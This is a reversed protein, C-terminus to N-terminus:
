EKGTPEAERRVRKPGTAKTVEWGRRRFFAVARPDDTTGIGENFVVGVVVGTFKEPATVKVM